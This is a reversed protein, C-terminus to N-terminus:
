GMMNFRWVVMLLITIVLFVVPILGMKRCAGPSLFYDDNEFRRRAMGMFGTYGALLVVLTLKMHMWGSKMLVSQHGIMALGLIFTVVMAPMTVMKYLKRAMTKLVAVTEANNKNEAQYAMIRFVYFLGAFWAVFTIVHLAKFYLYM